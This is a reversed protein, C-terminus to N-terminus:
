KSVAKTLPYLRTWRIPSPEQAIPAPVAYLDLLYSRQDFRAYHSLDLRLTAGTGRALAHGAAYLFLQAGVGGAYRCVRDKRTAASM